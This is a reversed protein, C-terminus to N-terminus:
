GTGGATTDSDEPQVTHLVARFDAVTEPIGVKQVVLSCTVLINQEAEWEQCLWAVAGDLGLQIVSAPCLDM